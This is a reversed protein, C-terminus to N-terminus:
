GGRKQPFHPSSTEVVAPPPFALARLCACDFFDM